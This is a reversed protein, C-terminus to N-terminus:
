GYGAVGSKLATDWERYLRSLTVQHIHFPHVEHSKNVVRWHHFGGISVSTMPPDSPGYKKGNIYFGQKDETFTVVFDSPSNEIRALQKPPVPKYVGASQGASTAHNGSAPQSASVMDALVM